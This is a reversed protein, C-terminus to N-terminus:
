SMRVTKWLNQPPQFESPPVHEVDFGEWAHDDDEGRALKDIYAEVVTSIVTSGTRSFSLVYETSRISWGCFILVPAQYQRGRLYRLIAEGATINLYNETAATNDAEWRCNDSIFRLRRAYDARRLLGENAEVWVKATATSTLVIVTIGRERAPGIAFTNNEPADDVWVLLPKITSPDIDQFRNRLALSGVVGLSSIASEISQRGVFADLSSPTVGGVAYEDLRLLLTDSTTEDLSVHLWLGLQKCLEKGAIFSCDKGVSEAWFRRVEANQVEDLLEPLTAEAEQQLARAQKPSHAVKLAHVQMAFALVELRRSLRRDHEQIRDLIASPRLFELLAARKSRKATWLQLDDKIRNLIEGIDQFCTVLTPDPRSWESSPAISVATTSSGTSSFSSSRKPAGSASSGTHHEHAPVALHDSQLAPQLPSLITAIRSLTFHLEYIKSDKIKRQDIWTQIAVATSIVATIIAIPDAM